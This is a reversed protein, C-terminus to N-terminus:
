KGHCGHMTSTSPTSGESRESGPNSDPADVLEVVRAHIISVVKPTCSGCRRCAGTVRGVDYHDKAGLDVVAEIEWREVQECDCIIENPNSSFASEPANKQPKM